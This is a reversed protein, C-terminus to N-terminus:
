FVATLHEGMTRMLNMKIHDHKHVRPVVFCFIRFLGSLVLFQLFQVNGEGGDKELETVQVSPHRGDLAEQVVQLLLDGGCILLYILLYIAALVSHEGDDVVAFTFSILLDGRYELTDYEM